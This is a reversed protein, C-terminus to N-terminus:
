KAINPYTESSIKRGYDDEIRVADTENGYSGIEIVESDELAHMRYVCNSQVCMSDGSELVEEKLEVNKYHLWEEDAYQFKVKGSLVYFAEDKRPHFKLSTRHNEKIELIKGNVGPLASWKKEKGWPTDRSVPKVRWASKDAKYKSM